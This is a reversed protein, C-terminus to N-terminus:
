KAGRWVEQMEEIEEEKIEEEKELVMGGDKGEREGLCGGDGEKGVNERKERNQIQCPERIDVPFSFTPVAEMAMPLHSPRDAPVLIKARMRERERERERM